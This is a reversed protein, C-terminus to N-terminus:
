RSDNVLLEENGRLFSAYFFLFRRLFNHLNEKQYKKQM